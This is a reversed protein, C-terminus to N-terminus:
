RRVWFDAIAHRGEPSIRELAPELIQEVLVGLQRRADALALMARRLAEPDEPQRLLEGRTQRLAEFVKRQAEGIDSARDRFAARIITADSPPLRSILERIAQGPRTLGPPAANQPEPEAFFSRVQQTIVFAGLLANCGLSFGLILPVLWPRHAPAIM